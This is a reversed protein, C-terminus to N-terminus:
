DLNAPEASVDGQGSVVIKEIRTQADKLKAECHAKLHQGRTYIEISEELEVSGAELKQVIDELDSLAAEFSLKEIEKPMKSNAKETM